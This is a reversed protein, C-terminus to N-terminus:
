GALRPDGRHTRRRDGPLEPPRGPTGLYVAHRDFRVCATPDSALRIVPWGAPVVLRHGHYSVGELERVGPRHGADAALGLM